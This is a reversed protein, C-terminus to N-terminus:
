REWGIGLQLITAPIVAPWQDRYLDADLWIPIIGFATLSLQISIGLAVPWVYTVDALLGVGVTEEYIPVRCYFLSPGFSIRLEQEGKLHVPYGYAQSAFVFVTSMEDLDENMVYVGSRLVNWFFKKSRKTLLTIEGGAVGVFLSIGIGGRLTLWETKTRSSSYPGARQVDDNSETDGGEEASYPTEKQEASFSPSSAISMALM